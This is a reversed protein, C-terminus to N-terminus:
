SYCCYRLPTSQVQESEHRVVAPDMHIIEDNANIAYPMIPTMKALALDEANRTVAYVNSSNTTFSFSPMPWIGVNAANHIAYIFSLASNLM